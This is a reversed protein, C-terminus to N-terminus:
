WSTSAASARTSRIRNAGGSGLAVVQGVFEHGPIGSFGAYGSLLELDTGCIGALVVDVLLEAERVQPAPLDHKLELRGDQLWIGKM